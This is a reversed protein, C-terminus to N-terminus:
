SMTWHRVQPSTHRAATRRELLPCSCACCRHMAAVAVCTCRRRHHYLRPLPVCTPPLVASCRTWSDVCPYGCMARLCVSLSAIPVLAVVTATMM